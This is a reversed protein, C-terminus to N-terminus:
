LDNLAKQAYENPDFDLLDSLDDEKKAVPPLVKVPEKPLEADEWIEPKALKEKGDKVMKDFSAVYKAQNIYAIHDAEEMEAKAESYKAVRGCKGVYTDGQYLYVEAVSGDENPLYYAQVEYNAPQLKELVKVSPLVYKDYLVTVYQNRKISTKTCNGIAKYVVANSVKTANPNTNEMLVQWRTKNPYLKQKPHLQNNYEKCAAIDDAVLREYTFEKEQYQDDAKNMDVRYAESKAWWRGIGIQLSKEVSYKKARNFHEARKEQSNGPNCIRVFPFMVHLDDFFKNVLHNEVEVEMPMPLNNSNITRFMDRMCELFLEEDKSRSYAMGIVCGSAVDYSYYAKVRTGGALKRPLDRDDMSIKSFSYVPAFRHHHPRHMNNYSHSSNRGKDVVIRNHPMNLYNWVTSDSIEIPKGDKYFDKPNLLEGTKRDAVQLKGSLFSLYLIHVDAAFPKNPMTYLSMILNEIDITVKRSNDNCFRPNIIGEYGMERYRKYARQLSVPNTLRLTHGTQEKIEEIATAAQKWFNRMNGGLKKRANTQNVFVAHLANMIEANRAYERVYQYNNLDRLYRGDALQYDHYFQKATPDPTIQELLAKNRTDQEPNPFKDLIAQKENEPLRDDILIKVVRGNGGVGVTTLRNTKKLHKYRDYTLGAAQWQALTIHTGAVQM